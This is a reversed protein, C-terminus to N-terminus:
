LPSLGHGDRYTSGYKTIPMEAGDRAVHMSDVSERISVHASNFCGAISYANPELSKMKRSDSLFNCVGKCFKIDCVQTGTFPSSGDILEIVAM